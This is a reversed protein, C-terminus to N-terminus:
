CWSWLAPGNPVRFAFMDTIDVVPDAIAKPSSAHGSM